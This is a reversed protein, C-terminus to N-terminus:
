RNITTSMNFHSPVGRWAQVTIGRVELVCDAAFVALLITRLRPSIRLYSTVWTITALTLGFSLGFTAPKRWSVPGEWPRDDLAFVGLHFLGSVVLVGAVAYLWRDRM